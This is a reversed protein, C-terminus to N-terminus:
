QLLMRYLKEVTQFNITDPNLDSIHLSLDRIKNESDLIAVKEQGLQGVRLLKM